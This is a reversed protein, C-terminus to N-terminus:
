DVDLSVEGVLSKVKIARERDDVQKHIRLREVEEMKERLMETTERAHRRSAELVEGAARLSAKGREHATRAALLEM